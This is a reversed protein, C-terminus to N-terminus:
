NSSPSRGADYFYSGKLYTSSENLMNQLHIFCYFLLTLMFTFFFPFMEIFYSFQPPYFPKIQYNEM